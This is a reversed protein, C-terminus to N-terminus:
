RLLNNICGITNNAYQVAKTELCVDLMSNEYPSCAMTPISISEVTEQNMQLIQDHDRLPIEYKVMAFSGWSHVFIQINFPLIKKNRYNRWRYYIMMQSLRIEETELQLSLCLKFTKDSWDFATFWRRPLTNQDVFRSNQYLLSWGQHGAYEAEIMLLNEISIDDLGMDVTLDSYYIRKCFTVAAPYKWENKVYMVSTSIPRSIYKNMCIYSQWFVCCFCFIKVMYGIVSVLYLATHKNHKAKVRILMATATYPECM